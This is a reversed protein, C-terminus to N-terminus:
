ATRRTQKRPAKRTPPKEEVDDPKKAAETAGDELAPTEPTETAVEEPLTTESGETSVEEPTTPEATQTEASEEALGEKESELDKPEPPNALYRLAGQLLM